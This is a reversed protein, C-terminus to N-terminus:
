CSLVKKSQTHDLFENAHRLHEILQENKMKDLQFTMPITRHNSKFFKQHQHIFSWYLATWTTTWDNSKKAGMKVLYNASSIYPKTSMLGGDAYTGMGYVNPVMVWDYADIFHQMFYNYIETPLVEAITFLNALIMLREIHHAYGCKLVKQHTDQVPKLNLINSTLKNSANWFNSNRQEIGHREYIARIFERWGILQRIFGEISSFTLKENYPIKNLVEKPTLLGNNLSSSLLSHNLFPQDESLADQYPGFDHLRFDIFNQLLREAEDFTTPYIFPRIRGPNSGFYEEVYKAARTVYQNEIPFEPISSIYNKPLKQRNEEDFSWKGGVPSGQDILINHHIRQKKYFDGLRYNKKTPGLFEENLTTQNLFSPSEYQVAQINYENCAKNMRKSLLFDVPDCYHIEDVKEDALDLKIFASLNEYDKQDVYTVRFGQNTLYDAYFKMSARHLVLKMKHFPQYTFFLDDEVIFVRRQKSLCPNTKFIQNPFVISIQPTM